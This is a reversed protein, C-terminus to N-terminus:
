QAWELLHATVTPDAIWDVEGWRPRRPGEMWRAISRAVARPPRRTTDVELLCRRREVAESTVVGIAECLLNERRDRESRRRSAGLRRALETPHCRLVVVDRIPLLHALHGVVVDSRFSSPRRTRKVLAELDVSLGGPRRRALGLRVALAGVEESSIGLEALGAAVSSKGTGPTGTLAVRRVM